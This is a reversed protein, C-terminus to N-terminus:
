KKEQLKAVKSAWDKYREPLISDNEGYSEGHSPVKVGPKLLLNLYSAMLGVKTSHRDKYDYIIGIVNVKDEFRDRHENLIDAINSRFLEDASGSYNDILVLNQVKEGAPLQNALKILSNLKDEGAIYNSKNLGIEQLFNLREPYGNMVSCVGLQLVNAQVLHQIAHKTREGELPQLRHISDLPKVNQQSQLHEYTALLAKNRLITVGKTIYRDEHLRNKQDNKSTKLIGSLEFTDIVGKFERRKDRTIETNFITQDLPMYHGTKDTYGISRRALTDDFDFGIVTKSLDIGENELYSNLHQLSNVTAKHTEVSIESSIEGSHSHYTFLTLLMIKNIFIKNM